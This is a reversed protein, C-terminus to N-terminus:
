DSTGAGIIVNLNPNARILQEQFDNDLSRDTILVDCDTLPALRVSGIKGIKSHDVLYFHKASVKLLESKFESERLNGDTFGHTLSVGHCSVFAKTPIFHNVCTMSISGSLSKNSRNYIGGTCILTINDNSIEDATELLTISNTIVTINYDPRIHRLFSLLTSSNDVFIVDGDRLQQAAAHCLINKEHSYKLERVNVPYEQDKRNVLIAGGHIKEVIGQSELEKLDRRITEQVVNLRQSLEQVKVSGEQEIMEIIKSKREAGLM